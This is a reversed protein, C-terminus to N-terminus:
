EATAEDEPTPTGPLTETVSGEDTIPTAPPTPTAEIAPLETATAVPEPTTIAATPTAVDSLDASPTAPESLDANPTAAPTEASEPTTSSEGGSLDVLDARPGLTVGFDVYEEPDVAVGNLKLEFHLHEGTSYGTSGTLGLRTEGAVVGAGPTVDMESLHGYLTTWGDGCDVEVHNGYSADAAATTVVGTCAAFVTSRTNGAVALDIGTHVDHRGATQGFRDTVVFGTRLPSVFRGGGRPTASAEAAPVAPVEESSGTLLADLQQDVADLRATPRGIVAPETAGGAILEGNGTPEAYVLGFSLLAGTLAVAAAFATPRPGIRRGAM